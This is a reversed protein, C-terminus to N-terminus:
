FEWTVEVPLIAKFAPSLIVRTPPLVTLEPAVCFALKFADSAGLKDLQIAFGDKVPHEDTRGLKPAQVEAGLVAPQETTRGLRDVQVAEGLM